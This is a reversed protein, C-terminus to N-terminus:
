HRSSPVATNHGRRDDYLSNEGDVARCRVSERPSLAPPLDSEAQAMGEEPFMGKSPFCAREEPFAAAGGANQGLM